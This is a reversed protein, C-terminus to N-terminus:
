ARATLNRSDRMALRPGNRRLLSDAAVWASGTLALQEAIGSWALLAFDGWILGVVGLALAGLAYIRVGASIM